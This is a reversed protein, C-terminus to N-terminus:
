NLFNKNENWDQLEPEDGDKNRGERQGGEERQEVVPTLSVFVKKGEDSVHSCYALRNDRHLKIKQPM